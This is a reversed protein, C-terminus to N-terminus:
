YLHFSVQIMMRVAVPKSDPGNAPVLQWKDRVTELAKEDLGYGLGRVVTVNHARGDTGIVAKLVVDGQIKLKRAADSYPASPCYSCKPSTYGDTGAVPTDDAKQLPSAVNASTQFAAPILAFSLILATPLFFRGTM